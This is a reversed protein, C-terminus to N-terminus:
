STCNTIELWMPSMRWTCIVTYIIFLLELLSSVRDYFSWTEGHKEDSDDNQLFTQKENLWPVQSTFHTGMFNMMDKDSFSIILFSSNLISSFMKMRIKRNKRFLLRWRGIVKAMQQWWMNNDSHRLTTTMTTLSSLMWPLIWPMVGPCHILDGLMLRKFLSDCMLNRTVVAWLLSDMVKELWLSLSNTKRCKMTPLVCRSVRTVINSTPFFSLFSSTEPAWYHIFLTYQPIGGSSETFGTWFTQLRCNNPTIERERERSFISDWLRRAFSDGFSDCSERRWFSKVANGWTKKSSTKVFNGKVKDLVITTLVADSLNESVIFRMRKPNLFVRFHSQTYIFASLTGFFSDITIRKGVFTLMLWTWTM